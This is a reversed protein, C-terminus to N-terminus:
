YRKVKLAAFTLQPRRQWNHKNAVEFKSTEHGLKEGGVIFIKPM